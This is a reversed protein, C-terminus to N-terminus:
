RRRDNKRKTFRVSQGDPMRTAIFGATLCAERQPMQIDPSRLSDWWSARNAARPLAAGIIEEIQEFTLVFETQKHRLLYDRLADYDNM